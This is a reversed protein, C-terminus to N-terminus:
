DLWAYFGEIRFRPPVVRWLPLLVSQGFFSDSHLISPQGAVDCYLAVHALRGRSLVLVGCGDYPTEHSELPRAYDHAHAAILAARHFIDNRERRPFQINRGYRERLVLEVLEACDLRKHSIGLYRDTWHAM